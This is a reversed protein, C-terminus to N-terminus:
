VRVRSPRHPQFSDDLEAGCLVLPTVTSVTVALVSPAQCRAAVDVLLDSAPGLRFRLIHCSRLKIFLRYQGSTNFFIM